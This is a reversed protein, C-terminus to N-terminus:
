DSSVPLRFSASAGGMAPHLVPVIRVQDSISRNRKAHRSRQGSSGPSTVAGGNADGSRRARTRSWRRRRDEAVRHVERKGGNRRARGGAVARCTERLRDHRGDRARSTAPVNSVSACVAWHPPPRWPVTGRAVTSIMGAGRVAQKTIGPRHGRRQRKKPLRRRAGFLDSRGSPHRGCTIADHHSRRRSDGARAITLGPNVAASSPFFSADVVFLNEVDHARCFPDLVSARPDTGFVLTGCPADHEPARRTAFSKPSWYGSRQLINRLQEVLLEHARTNNPRYELVIRGDPALRV